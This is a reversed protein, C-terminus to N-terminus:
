ELATVKKLRRVHREAGSFETELWKRTISMAHDDSIVRAALCLVNTNDDQVMTEAAYTNYGIGARVGKVKNVAMCAGIGNGCIVIGRNGKKKAKKALPVVYDPYDDDEVYKKPGLDEVKIKMENKLFRKLRRKLQYGAHDSAIFLMITTYWM